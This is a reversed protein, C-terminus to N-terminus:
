FFHEFKRYILVPSNDRSFKQRSSNNITTSPTTPPLNPSNERSPLVGGIKQQHSNSANNNNNNNNTLEDQSDVITTLMMTNNTQQRRNLSVPLSQSLEEGGNNYTTSHSNNQISIVNTAHPTSLQMSANLKIRLEILSQYWQKYDDFTHAYFEHERQKIKDYIVFGNKHASSFLTFDKLLLFDKPIKDDV